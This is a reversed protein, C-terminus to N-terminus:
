VKLLDWTLASDFTTTGSFGVADTIKAAVAAIYLDLDTGDELVIQDNEDAVTDYVIFDYDDEHTLKGNANVYIDSPITFPELTTDGTMGFPKEGVGLSDELAIFERELILKGGVGFGTYDELLIDDGFTGAVTTGDEQKFTGIDQGELVITDLSNEDSINVLSARAFDAMTYSEPNYSDGLIAGGGQFGVPNELILNDGDTEDVLNEAAFTTFTDITVSQGVNVDLSDELLFHDGHDLQPNGETSLDTTGTILLRSGFQSSGVELMIGDGTIGEHATTALFSLGNSTNHTKNVTASLKTTISSRVFVDRNLDSKGDYV